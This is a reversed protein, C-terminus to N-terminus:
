IEGMKQLARDLGSFNPKRIKRPQSNQSNPKIIPRRSQGQEVNLSASQVSSTPDFNSDKAYSILSPDSKYKKSLELSEAAGNRDLIVENSRIEQVTAGAGKIARSPKM